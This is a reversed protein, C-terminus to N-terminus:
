WVLGIGTGTTARDLAHTQPWGGAPIKLEFGVLHMSTQRNRTNHTTLYLDRRRASWEDLSTRSVTTRRQKHDLFGRSHPPGAGSFSQQALFLFVLGMDENKTTEKIVRDTFCCWCYCFYCHKSFEVCYSNQLSQMMIQLLIRSNKWLFQMFRGIFESFLMM